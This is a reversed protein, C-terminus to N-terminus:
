HETPEPFPYKHPEIAQLKERTADSIVEHLTTTQGGMKCFHPEIIKFGRDDGAQYRRFIWYAIQDAMQILRSAKSDLFLPVEAFNRLKGNAHGVHKFVRHLSQMTQETQGKSRDLIFIGRAPEARKQYRYALWKDFCSALSEYCFPIIREKPMLAKEVVTAFAHAKLQRNDLLRLMDAVARTRETPSFQDWGEKASRMPGAHLERYRGDDQFRAAIPEINAELWHTQREFLMIGGLVFFSTNPDDPSGSDDLYTLYM